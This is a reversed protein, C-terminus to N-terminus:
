LDIQHVLRHVLVLNRTDFDHVSQRIMLKPTNNQTSSHVVRSENQELDMIREEFCMGLNRAPVIRVM